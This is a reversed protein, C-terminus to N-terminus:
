LVLDDLDIYDFDNLGLDLVEILLNLREEGSGSEWYQYPVYEWYDRNYGSLRRDRAADLHEKASLRPLWIKSIQSCNPWNTNWLEGWKEKMFLQGDRTWDIKSNQFNNNDIYGKDYLSNILNAIKNKTEDTM